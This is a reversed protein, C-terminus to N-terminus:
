LPFSGFSCVIEAWLSLKGSWKRRLRVVICIPSKIPMPLNKGTVSALKDNYKQLRFEQFLKCLFNIDHVVQLICMNVILFIDRNIIRCQEMKTLLVQM